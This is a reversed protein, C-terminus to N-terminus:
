PLTFVTRPLLDSKPFRALAVVRPSEDGMLVETLNLRNGPQSSNESIKIGMKNLRLPVKRTKVFDDPANFVDVVQDLLIQPTLVSPTDLLKKELMELERETDGIERELRADTREDSQDAIAQQRYHRLRSHLMRHETQLRHSALKLQMIRELAYTALGQFMCHRLGERTGTEDPAPSYIRHDSFSVAVQRVDKKLMDGSLEMGFVTKETRRMCLLACCSTDRYRIDDMYDQIESSHSFVSQLDAVNAFFANVYPDATFTRSNVDIVGPIRDVLEGTYDLSSQISSWLKKKYGPVLRINSDISDAVSDVTELVSTDGSRRLAQWQRHRDIANRLGHFRNGFFSKM